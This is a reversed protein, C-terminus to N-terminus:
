KLQVAEKELEIVKNQLNHNKLSLSDVLHTLKLERINCAELNAKLKSSDDPKRFQIGILGINLIVSVILFILNLNVSYISKKKSSFEKDLLNTEVANRTNENSRLTAIQHGTAWQVTLLQKTELTTCVYEADIKSDFIAYAQETGLVRNKCMQDLLINAKKIQEKTLTNEM